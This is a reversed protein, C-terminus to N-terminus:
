EGEGIILHGQGSSMVELAVRNGEDNVQSFPKLEASSVDMTLTASQADFVLGGPQLTGDSALSEKAQMALELFSHGSPTSEELFRIRERALNVPSAGMEEGPYVSQWVQEMRSHVSAAQLYQISCGMGLALLLLGGGAVGSFRHLCKLMSGSSAAKKVQLLNLQKKKVSRGLRWLLAYFDDGTDAEEAVDTLAELPWSLPVSVGTWLGTRCIHYQQWRLAKGSLAQPVALVDPIVSHVSLGYPAMVSTWFAMDQERYGALGYTGDQKGTNVWLLAESDELLEDEFQYALTGPKVRRPYGKLDVSRLILKHAPALIRVHVRGPPLAPLGDSLVGSSQYDEEGSVGYCWYVPEGPEGPAVVLLNEKGTRM